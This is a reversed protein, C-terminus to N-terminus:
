STITVDALDSSNVVFNYITITHTVCAEGGQLKLLCTRFTELKQKASYIM